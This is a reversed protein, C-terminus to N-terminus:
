LHHDLGYIGPPPFIVWHNPVSSAREHFGLETILVWTPYSVVVELETELCRIGDDPVHVCTNSACM